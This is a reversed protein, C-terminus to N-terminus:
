FKKVIKNKVKGGGYLGECNSLVKKLIKRLITVNLISQSNEQCNKCIRKVIRVYNTKFITKFIGQLRLLILKLGRLFKTVRTRGGREQHFIFLLLIMMSILDLSIKKTFSGM